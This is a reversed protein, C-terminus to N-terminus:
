LDSVCGDHSNKGYVYIIKEYSIRMRTLKTYMDNSLFRCILELYGEYRLKHFCSSGKIYFFNAYYTNTEVVRIIDLRLLPLAPITPGIFPIYWGDIIEDENGSPLIRWLGYLPMWIKWSSPDYMWTSRSRVLGCVESISYKPSITLM